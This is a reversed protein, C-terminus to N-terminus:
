PSYENDPEMLLYEMMREDSRQNTYVSLNNRYVAEMGFSDTAYTEKPMQLAFISGFLVFLMFLKSIRKKKTNQFNSLMLLMHNNTM